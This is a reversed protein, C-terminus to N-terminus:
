DNQRVKFFRGNQMEGGEGWHLKIKWELAKKGTFGMVLLSFGDRNMLFYRFTQGRYERSTEHFFEKTACFQAVLDDISRLVTKHEKDFYEAVQLSTTVVQKNEVKVLDPEHCDPPIDEMNANLLSEISVGLVNSYAVLTDRKINKM